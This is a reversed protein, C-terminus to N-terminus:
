KVLVSFVKGRLSCVCAYSLPFSMLLTLGSKNLSNVDVIKRELVYFFVSFCFSFRDGLLQCWACLSLIILVLAFLKEASAFM